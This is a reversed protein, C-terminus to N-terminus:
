PMFPLEEAPVTRSPREPPRRRAPDQDNGRNRPRDARAVIIRKWWAGLLNRALYTPTTGGLYGLIASTVRDPELAFLYAGNSPACPM